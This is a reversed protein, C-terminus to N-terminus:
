QVCSVIGTHFFSEGPNSVVPCTGDTQVSAGTWAWVNSTASLRACLFGPTTSTLLANNATFTMSVSSGDGATTPSGLTVTTSAPTGVCHANGRVQYQLSSNFGVGTFTVSSPSSCASGVTATTPSTVHGVDVVLQMGTQIFPGSAGDYSLCIYAPTTLVTSRSSTDVTLTGATTTSAAATVTVGSVENGTTCLSDTFVAFPNSTSSALLSSGTM